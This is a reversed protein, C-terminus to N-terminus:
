SSFGKVLAEIFHGLFERMGWISVAVVGISVFLRRIFIFIATYTEWEKIMARFKEVDDTALTNQKREEQLAIIEAHLEEQRKLLEQLQYNLLRRYERWTGNGDDDNPPNELIM